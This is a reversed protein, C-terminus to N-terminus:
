WRCEGGHRALEGDLGRLDFRATAAHNRDTIMSMAVIRKGKLAGILAEAEPGRLQYRKGDPTARLSAVQVSASDVSWQLRATDGRMADAMTLEFVSVRENCRIWLVPRFRERQLMGLNIGHRKVAVSADDEKEEARGQVVWIGSMALSKWVRFRWESWNVSLLRGPAAESSASAVVREGGPGSARSAAGVGALLLVAMVAASVCLLRRLPAAPLRWGLDGASGAGCQWWDRM